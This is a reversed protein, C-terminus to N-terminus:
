CFLFRPLSVLNNFLIWDTPQRDLLVTSGQNMGVISVVDTDKAEGSVLQRHVFDMALTLWVADSRTVGDAVDNKRM